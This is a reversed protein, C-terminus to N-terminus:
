YGILMKSRPEDSLYPKLDMVRGRGVLRIGPLVISIFTHEFGLIVTCCPGPYTLYTEIQFRFQSDSTINLNWVFDPGIM